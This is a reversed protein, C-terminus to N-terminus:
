FDDWGDDLDSHDLKLKTAPAAANVVPGATKKKPMILKGKSMPARPAVSKIGISAFPDDQDASFQSPSSFQNSTSYSSSASAKTPTAYTSTGLDDGDDDDAWGSEDGWGDDDGDDVAPASLNSSAFQQVPPAVEAPARVPLIPMPAPAVPSAMPQAVTANTQPQTSSSMWSSLGSLYSGSSPAPAVAGGSTQAVSVTPQQQQHQGIQQTADQRAQTEMRDSEQKLAVLFQDIVGFAEKRVNPMPDLTLPMVAPMVKSALDPMKFLAKSKTTSQLAALRCPPFPDKFARIYSPLLMKQMSVESLQPAIKAIFIVANTRISTETDSQLRVLYRSLKELNPANLFPVLGLTAKLTMERLAPSSDNFGSCLPGFVSSNLTNKDLHQSMFEVKTLLAGRVGRDQVKFLMGVLPGLEAGVKNADLHSEVVYFLPQLM